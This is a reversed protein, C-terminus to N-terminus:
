EDINPLEIIKSIAYSTNSLKIKLRLYIAFVKKWDNVDTATKFVLTDASIQEGYGIKLSEINDMLPENRPNGTKSLYQRYLILEGDVERIYYIISQLPYIAPNNTTLTSNLGRTVEAISCNTIYFVRQPQSSLNNINSQDSIVAFMLYIADNNNQINTNDFYPSSPLWTGNEQGLLWPHALRNAISIPQAFILDRINRKDLLCGTLATSKIDSELQTLSQRLQNVIRIIKDQHQITKLGMNNISVVAAIILLTLTMSVLLEVFTHGHCNSDRCTM